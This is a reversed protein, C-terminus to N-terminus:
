KPKGGIITPAGVVEASKVGGPMYRRLSRNHVAEKTAESIIRPDNSIGFPAGGRMLIAQDMIVSGAKAQEEALKGKSYLARAVELAAEWPLDLLAKGKQLVLVRDGEQRVIVSEVSM